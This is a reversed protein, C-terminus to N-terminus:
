KQPKKVFNSETWEKMQESSNVELSFVRNHINGINVTNVDQVTKLRMMEIAQVAQVSQIAEVKIKVDNVDNSTYGAIAVVIAIGFTNIYKLYDVRKDPTYGESVTNQDSM